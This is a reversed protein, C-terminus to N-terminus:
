LNVGIMTGLSPSTHISLYRTLRFRDRKGPTRLGNQDIIVLNNSGMGTVYGRTGAANWVIGRPDGLSRDRETQVINPSAYSLHGANLDVVTPNPLNGPDVIGMNVRIFVGKVNPEFRLENTADTGVATVNGTAPNVAIGMVMNMLSSAYGTVTESSVNIVAVDRDPMDWGVQRLTDPADAGAIWQSWDAGNDDMWQGVSNKRVILAVPPAPDSGGPLYDPNIAPSFSGATPPSTTPGGVNPPPNTGGYPGSNYSPISTEGESGNHADGGVVNPILYRRDGGGILTTANGSEFIAVYVETGAANVALARPDEGNIDITNTVALTATDIVQVNNAQSCSVFAREPTGAFVLDFPEDATQITAVVRRTGFDIVSISDSVHNVVWIQTGDPRWRVSVPDLGVQVAGIPHPLGSSLDFLEVRNDPLNVAALTVGDPSLDVAHLAQNEWNVFSLDDARAVSSSIGLIALLGILRAAHGVHSVLGFLLSSM